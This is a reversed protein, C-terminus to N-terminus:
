PLAWWTETDIIQKVLRTLGATTMFSDAFPAIAGITMLVDLRGRQRARRAMEVVLRWRAAVSPLGAAVEVVSELTELNWSENLFRTLEKEREAPLLSACLFVEPLSKYDKRHFSGFSSRSQWWWEPVNDSERQARDVAQVLLKADQDRKAAILQKVAEGLVLPATSHSPAACVVRKVWDLHKLRCLIRILRVLIDASLDENRPRIQYIRRNYATVAKDRRLTRNSKGVSTSSAVKSTEGESLFLHFPLRELADKLLVERLRPSTAGFEDAVEAMALARFYSGMEMFWPPRWDYTTLGRKALRRAALGVTAHVLVEDLVWGESWSEFRQPAKIRRARKVLSRLGRVDKLARAARALPTLTILPPSDLRESLESGIKYARRALKRLEDVQAWSIAMASLAKVQEASRPESRSAYEILRPALQYERSAPLAAGLVPLLSMIAEPASLRLLSLADSVSEHQLYATLMAPLIKSEHLLEKKDLHSSQASIQRFLDASGEVPLRAAEESVRRLLETKLRSDLIMTTVRLAQEIRRDALMKLAIKELLMGQFLEDSKVREALAICRDFDRQRMLSDFKAEIVQEAGFSLFERFGSSMPFSKHVAISLDLLPSRQDGSIRHLAEVLSSRARQGFKSEVQELLERAAKPHLESLAQYGSLLVKVEEREGVGFLHALARVLRILVREGLLRLRETAKGLPKISEAARLVAAIEGRRGAGLALAQRLELADADHSLHLAILTVAAETYGAEGLAEILQQGVKKKAHPEALLSKVFVDCTAQNGETTAAKIVAAALDSHFDSYSYGSGDMEAIAILCAPEDLLDFDQAFRAAEWEDETSRVRRLSKQKKSTARSRTARSYDAGIALATQRWLDEAGVVRAVKAIDALANTRLTDWQISGALERAQRLMQLCPLPDSTTQFMVRAIGCLAEVHAAPDSLHNAEEQVLRLTDNARARAGDNAETRAIVLLAKVRENRDPRQNAYARAEDDAGAHAVVGLASEPVKTVLSRATTQLLSIILLDPLAENDSESVALVSELFTTYASLTRDFTRQAQYWGRETALQRTRAYQGAELLHQPLTGLTYVRREPTLASLRETFESM